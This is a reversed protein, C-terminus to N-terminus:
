SHMAARARAPPRQRGAVLALPRRPRRACRHMSPTAICVCACALVRLCVSCACTQERVLASVAADVTSPTVSLELLVQTKAPTGDDSPLPRVTANAIDAAGVGDVHKRLVTMAAMLFTNKESDTLNTFPFDLRMSITRDLASGPAATPEPTSTSTTAPPATTTAATTTSTSRPAAERVERGFAMATHTPDFGADLAGYAVDSKVPAAIAVTAALLVRMRVGLAGAARIRM